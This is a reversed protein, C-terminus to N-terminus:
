RGVALDTTPYALFFTSMKSNKRQRDQAQRPLIITNVNFFRVFLINNKGVHRATSWGTPLAAAHGEAQEIARRCEKASLVRSSVHVQDCVCVRDDLCVVDLSEHSV